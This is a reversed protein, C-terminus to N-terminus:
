RSGDSGTFPVGAVVATVIVDQAGDVSRFNKKQLILLFNATDDKSIVNYSM